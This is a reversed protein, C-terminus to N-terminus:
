RRRKIIPTNILAWFSRQSANLRKQNLNQFTQMQYLPFCQGNAESLNVFCNVIYESFRKANGSNRNKTFLQNSQGHALYACWYLTNLEWNVFQLNPKLTVLRFEWNELRFEWFEFTLTWWVCCVVSIIGVSQCESTM